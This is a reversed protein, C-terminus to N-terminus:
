RRLLVFYVAALIIIGGLIFWLWLLSGSSEEEVIEATEIEETTDNTETTDTDIPEPAPTNDQSTDIQAPILENIKMVKVSAEDGSISLLEVQINYYGDETVDFKNIDGVEFVAQQPDSTVNITAKTSTLSIVGVYHYEGEVKVKLRYKVKLARTFGVEFLDDAVRYTSDWTGVYTSDDSVGTTDDEDEEDTTFSNTGNTVCNGNIDCYTINYYYTTDEDLDELDLTHRDDFTSDNESNDLDDEATGYVFTYNILDYSLDSVIDISASDDTIDEADEISASPDTSDSIIFSVVDEDTNDSTDNCNTTINYSGDTLASLVTTYSHETGVSAFDSLELNVQTSSNLLYWCFTGSEIPNAENITLNYTFYSNTLVEADSPNNVAIGPAITDNGLGVGSLHPIWITVNSSTNYYRHVPAYLEM